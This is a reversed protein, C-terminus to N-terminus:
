HIGYIQKDAVARKDRHICLATDDFVTRDGYTVARKRGDALWAINFRPMPSPSRDVSAACQYQGPQDVAVRVRGHAQEAPEVVMGEIVPQLFVDEGRFCLVHCFVKDRPSRPQTHDLHDAASNRCIRIHVVELIHDRTYGFLGPQASNKTLCDDIKGRWIPAGGYASALRSPFEQSLEGICSFLRRKANWVLSSHAM